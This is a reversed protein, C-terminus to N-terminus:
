TTGRVGNIPSMRWGRDSTPLPSLRIPYSVAEKLGTDLVALSKEFILTPLLRELVPNRFSPGEFMGMMNYNKWFAVDVLLAQWVAAVDTPDSSQNGM